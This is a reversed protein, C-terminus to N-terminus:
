LLSDYQIHVAFGSIVIEFVWVVLYLALVIDRFYRYFIANGKLLRYLFIILPLTWHLPWSHPHLLLPM